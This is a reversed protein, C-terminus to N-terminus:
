IVQRSPKIICLWGFICSKLSLGLGSSLNELFKKISVLFYNLCSLFFASSDRAVVSADRTVAVVKDLLSKLIPWSQFIAAGVLIVKNNINIELKTVGKRCLLMDIQSWQGLLMVQIERWDLLFWSGLVVNGVLFRNVRHRGLHLRSFFWCRTSLPPETLPRTAINQALTGVHWLSSSKNLKLIKIYFKQLSIKVIYKFEEVIQVDTGSSTRGLYEKGKM